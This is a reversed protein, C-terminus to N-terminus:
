GMQGCGDFGNYLQETQVESPEQRRTQQRKGPSRKAVKTEHEVRQTEWRSLRQGM